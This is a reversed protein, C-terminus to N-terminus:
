TIQEDGGRKRIENKGGEVDDRSDSRRNVQKMGKKAKVRGKKERGERREEERRKKEIGEERRKNERRKRRVCKCGIWYYHLFPM